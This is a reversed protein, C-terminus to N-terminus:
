ARGGSFCIGSLEDLIPLLQAADVSPIDLLVDAVELAAYVDLADRLEAQDRAAEMVTLIPRGARGAAAWRECLVGFDEELSKSPNFDQPIWGDCSETIIDFGRPRPRCGLLLPVRGAPKPWSFLPDFNFFEGHFEAQDNEWITRIARLSERFVALRETKKHGHNEFERDDWGTGVGLAFRGGGSILDLTAVTKAFAIIDHQATEAICTGIALDTKAAIVALAIYPDLVRKYVDRLANDVKRRAGHGLAPRTEPVAVPVHTHEPLYLSQFGRDAAALALEGIPMALDTSRYHLGIRM